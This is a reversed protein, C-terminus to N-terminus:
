VSRTQKKVPQDSFPKNGSVSTVKHNKNDSLSDKIEVYSM